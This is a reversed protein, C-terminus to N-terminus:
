LSSYMKGWEKIEEKDKDRLIESSIWKAIKDPDNKKNNEWVSHTPPIKKEKDM